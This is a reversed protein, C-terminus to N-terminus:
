AKLSLHLKQLCNYFKIDKKISWVYKHVLKSQCLPFSYSKPVITAKPSLQLKQSLQLMQLRKILVCVQLTVIDWVCSVFKAKSTKQSLQLKKTQKLSLVSKHDYQKESLPVFATKPCLNLKQHSVFQQVTLCVQSTVKGRFCPVFINSKNDLTCLSTFKAQRQCLPCSYSKSVFPVNLSM